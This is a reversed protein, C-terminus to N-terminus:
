ECSGSIDLCGCAFSIMTAKLQSSISASPGSLLGSLLRPECLVSLLIQITPSGAATQFSYQEHFGPASGHGAAEWSLGPGEAAGHSM